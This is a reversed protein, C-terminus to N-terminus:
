KYQLLSLRFEKANGKSAIEKSKSEWKEYKRVVGLGRKPSSEKTKLPSPHHNPRRAELGPLEPLSTLYGATLNAYPPRPPPEEEKETSDTRSAERRKKYDAITV